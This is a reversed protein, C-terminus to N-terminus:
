KSPATKQHKELENLRHELQRVQRELQEIRQEESGPRNGFGPGFNGFGGPGFNGFGGPFGPIAPPNRFNEPARKLTVKVDHSKGNRLITLTITKGAGAKEVASRLQGIDEIASGDIKTIIDGRQLKATAAPSNPVVNRIIAGHQAEVGMQQALEPTLPEAEVGIYASPRIGQGFGQPFRPQSPFGQQVEASGGREGLTVQVTKAKGNRMVTVPVKQGPKHAALAKELADYNEVNQNAIKTIVDGKHIGAEGAAGNKSVVRVTVGHSAANPPAESILIGLSARPPSPARQAGAPYTLAVASVLAAAIMLRWTM